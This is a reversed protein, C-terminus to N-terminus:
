SLKPNTTLETNKNLEKNIANGVDLLSKKLNNILDINYVSNENFIVSIQEALM